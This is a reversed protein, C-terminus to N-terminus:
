GEDKGRLTRWDSAFRVRGRAALLRQSAAHHNYQRVAERLTETLGEGSNRLAADVEEAPLFATIKRM